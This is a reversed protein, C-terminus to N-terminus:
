DDALSKLQSYNGETTNYRNIKLLSLMQSTKVQTSNPMTGQLKALHNAQNKLQQLEEKKANFANIDINNEELAHTTKMTSEFYTNHHNFKAQRM